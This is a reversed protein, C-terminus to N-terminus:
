LCVQVKLPMSLRQSRRRSWETNWARAWLRREPSESMVLGAASTTGTVPFARWGWGPKAWGDRGLAQRLWPPKWGSYHEGQLLLGM